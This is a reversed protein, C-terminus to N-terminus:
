WCQSLGEWTMNGHAAGSVELLIQSEMGEAGLICIGLVLSVRRIWVIQVNLSVCQKTIWQKSWLVKASILWAYLVQILVDLYPAESCSMEQLIFRNKCGLSASHIWRSRVRAACQKDPQLFFTSPRVFTVLSLTTVITLKCLWESRRWEIWVESWRTYRWSQVSTDIYMM